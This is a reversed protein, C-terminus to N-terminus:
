NIIKKLKVNLLNTFIFAGYINIHDENAFVYYDYQFFTEYNWFKVVTDKTVEQILENRRTLKTINNNQNYLYYKPPSLLIVKVNHKKCEAIMELLKEKNDIFNKINEKTHRHQLYKYSNNAIETSDYNLNEFSSNEVTNLFGWDNFDNFNKNRKSLFLEIYENTNSTILLYDKLPPKKEYNNIGYFIYFLNNKEWQANRTDELTHYSMEFIVAKLNKFLPFNKKFLLYDIDLSSVGHALPAVKFDLYEPNIARWNQSSGLILVEIEEPNKLCEVKARFTNNRVSVEIWITLILLPAFFLGTKLLFQKM